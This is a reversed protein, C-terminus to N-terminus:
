VQTVSNVTWGRFVFFSRVYAVFQNVPPTVDYPGFDQTVGARTANVM